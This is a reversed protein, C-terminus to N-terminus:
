FFHAHGRVHRTHAGGAAYGSEGAAALAPYPVAGGVGGNGSAQLKHNWGVQPLWVEVRIDSDSSPTLQLTVRCFAPVTTFAAAANANPTNPPTFAGAKVSEASLVRGNTVKMQALSECAVPAPAAANLTGLTVAGLLAMAAATKM